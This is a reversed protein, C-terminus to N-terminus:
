RSMEASFHSKSTRTRASAREHRGSILPLIVRVLLRCTTSKMDEPSRRTIATWHATSSAYRACGKGCGLEVVIPSIEPAIFVSFQRNCRKAHYVKLLAASCAQATVHHKALIYESQPKGKKSLAGTMTSIEPKEGRSRGAHDQSSIRM